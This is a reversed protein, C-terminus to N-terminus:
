AHPERGKVNLFLRGYYGGSGLRHDEGLRGEAGRAEVSRAPPEHLVLYGKQVAVRQARDGM